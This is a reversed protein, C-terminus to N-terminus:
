SALTKINGIGIAKNAEALLRLQSYTYFHASGPDSVRFAGGCSGNSNPYETTYWFVAQKNSFCARYIQVGCRLTIPKLDLNDM